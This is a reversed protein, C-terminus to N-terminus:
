DGPPSDLVERVKALLTDATFPKQLFAATDDSGLQPSVSGGSYGSMHLARVGPRVARIRDALVQGSMGPMVSDTLLLELQQSSALSLAEEWTNAELTAYGNRRLIRSTVELVAREDDVVLVTEGNGATGPVRRGPAAAVRGAPGAPAGAAPLYVRFTTGAGEASDVGICGGDGTVIGYVTSLGLGTGQGAPKTTFFPEFVHAAVDASMGTGTDSVALEVFRGPDIGSRLRPDGVPLDVASTAITLSGGEPMADRANVALNLLVQEMRGRDTRVAPLAAAPDVRMEIHEGVSVGLMNRMGAIVANLDIEESRGPQRRSFVLLEKTLASARQATSLIQEMDARLAPDSAEGAALGAYGIIAALLNNFDHAIGGALQGVTELREAVHLRAESAEREAVARTQETIDRTVTAAGTVAGDADLVPSVSVSVDIVVGDKRVQRTEFNGVRQGRRVRELIPVLEGARDPPMLESVNHGIMEQAAYGYMDAAGANWSTIVGDLTKGIIGDASSDVIAALLSQAQQAARAETIDRIVAAAGTVAGGTDRLPAVSMAVDIVSGDKRVRQTEFRGVRQGARIQDLLRALEGPRGSPLLVSASRGVIEAATYGFAAVAGANWSTIVGDLDASIIADSSSEVIAALLSARGNGDGAM